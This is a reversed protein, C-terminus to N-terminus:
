GRCRSCLGYLTFSSARLRFGHAESARQQLADIRPDPPLDEIKGCCTCVCHGHGTDDNLEYLAAGHRFRHSRLLGAEQFQGLVRYITRQDPAGGETLLIRHIDEVSLHREATQQFVRLVRIKPLTARFGTSRIVDVPVQRTNQM